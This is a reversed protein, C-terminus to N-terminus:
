KNVYIFNRFVRERLENSAVAEERSSCPANVMPPLPPPATAVARARTVRRESLAAIDEDGEAECRDADEDLDTKCLNNLAFIARVMDNCHDERQVTLPARLIRWRGRVIGFLCEVDKRVSSLHANFAGEDAGSVIGRVALLRDWELYGGDCLLYVDTRTYKLGVLSRLDYTRDYKGKRVDAVIDMQKVVERDNKTGPFGHSIHLCRRDHDAIVFFSISCRGEKGFYINSLSAPCRDWLIHINDMSGCCGPLLVTRYQELTENVRDGFNIYRHINTSIYKTFSHFFVRLSEQSVCSLDASDEFTWGSALIKLTAMLLIGVPHAKRSSRGNKQLHLSDRLILFTEYTLRFRRRFSERLPLYDASGPLESTLQALQRGWISDEPDARPLRSRRKKKKVVTTEEVTYELLIDDLMDDSAM